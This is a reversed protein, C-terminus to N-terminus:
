QAGNSGGGIQIQVTFKVRMESKEKSASSSILSVDKRGASSLSEMLMAVEKQDPATGIINIKGGLGDVKIQEVVLGAPIQEVIDSIVDSLDRRMKYVMIAGERGKTEAVVVGGAIAKREAEKLVREVRARERQLHNLRMKQIVGASVMFLISACVVIILTLNNFRFGKVFSSVSGADFRFKTETLFNIHM